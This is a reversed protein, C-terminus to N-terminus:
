SYCQFIPLYTEYVTSVKELFHLIRSQFSFLLLVYCVLTKLVNIVGFNYSILVTKHLLPLLVSATRIFDLDWLWYIVIYINCLLGRM